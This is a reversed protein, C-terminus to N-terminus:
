TRSRGPARFASSARDSARPKPAAGTWAATLADLKLEIVVQREAIVTLLDLVQAIRDQGDEPPLVMEQLAADMRATREDTALVAYTTLSRGFRDHQRLIEDPAEVNVRLVDVADRDTWSRALRGNPLTKETTAM